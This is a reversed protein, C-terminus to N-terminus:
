ADATRAVRELRDALRPLPAALRPLADWRGDEVAIRLKALSDIVESALRTIRSRLDRTDGRPDWAAFESTAASADEEAERFAVTAAERTVRDNEVARTWLRATEVQSRLTEVTMGSRERYDGVTRPPAAVYWIAALVAIVVALLGWVPQRM